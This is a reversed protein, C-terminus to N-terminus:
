AADVAARLKGLLKRACGSCLTLERDKPGCAWFTKLNGGDSIEIDAVGDCISCYSDRPIRKAELM